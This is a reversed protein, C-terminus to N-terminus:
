GAPTAYHGIPKDSGDTVFPVGWRGWPNGKEDRPHPVRLDFGGAPNTSLVTADLPKGGAYAEDDKAPFYWVKDGVAPM